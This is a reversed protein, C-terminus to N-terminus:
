DVAETGKNERCLREHETRCENSHGCDNSICAQHNESYGKAAESLPVVSLPTVVYCLVGDNM